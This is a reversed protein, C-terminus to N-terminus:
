GPVDVIKEWAEANEPFFWRELQRGNRFHFISVVRTEIQLGERRAGMWSLACVHQDNAFVDHERLWFGVPALGKLWTALADRGRIHRLKAQRQSVARQLPRRKRAPLAVCSLTM